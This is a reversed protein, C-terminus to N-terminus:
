TFLHVIAILLLVAGEAILAYLARRVWTAKIAIESENREFDEVRQQALCARTKEEPWDTADDLLQRPNPTVSWTRLRYACFSFVLVFVYVLFAVVTLINVLPSPKVTSHLTAIGATLLTASGLGFNAKGDLSGIQAQQYALRGKIEDYILNLSPWTPEAM